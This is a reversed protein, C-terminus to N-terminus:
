CLAHIVGFAHASVEVLCDTVVEGDTPGGMPLDGERLGAALPELATTCFALAVLVDSLSAM